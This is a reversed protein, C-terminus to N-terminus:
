LLLISSQKWFQTTEMYFSEKVFILDLQFLSSAFLWQVVSKSNPLNRPEEADWVSTILFVIQLRTSDGGGGGGHPIPNINTISFM